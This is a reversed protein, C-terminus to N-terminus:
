SSIDLWQIDDQNEGIEESFDQWKVQSIPDLIVQIDVIMEPTLWSESHTSFEEINAVDFGLRSCKSIIEPSLGLFVIKSEFTESLKLLSLLYRDLPNRLDMNEYSSLVNELDIEENIFYITGGSVTKFVLLEFTEQRDLSEIMKKAAETAAHFNGDKLYVLQGYFYKPLVVDKSTWVLLDPNSISLDPELGYLINM